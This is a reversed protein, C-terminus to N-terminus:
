SGIFEMKLEGEDRAMAGDEKGSNSVVTLFSPPDTVSLMKGEGTGTDFEVKSAVM